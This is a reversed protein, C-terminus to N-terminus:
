NTFKISNVIAQFGPLNQKDDYNTGSMDHHHNERFTFMVYTEGHLVYYTHDVYSEADGKFELKDYLTDYNNIKGDLLTHFRDKRARQEAVYDKTINPTIRIYNDKQGELPKIRVDRSVVSWDTIAIPKDGLSDSGGPEPNSAEWTIPYEFTFKKATDTYTKTQGEYNTTESSSTAKEAKDNQYVKFGAYCLTAVVLIVMIEFFSLFGGQNIKKM